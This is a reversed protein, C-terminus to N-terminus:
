KDSQFAFNFGAPFRELQVNGRPFVRLPAPTTPVGPRAPSPTGAGAERFIGALHGALNGALLEPKQHSPDHPNVFPSAQETDDYYAYDYEELEDTGAGKAVAAAANQGGSPIHDGSLIRFGNVGASYRVTYLKGDDGVYQYEGIRESGTTEEKIIVGDEQQVAHGFRMDKGSVRTSVNNKFLKPWATIEMSLYSVKHPLVLVPLLYLLLYFFPLVWPEKNCYPGNVLLGM